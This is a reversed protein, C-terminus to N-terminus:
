AAGKLTRRLNFLKSKLSSDILKSGVIVKFGGILSPDVVYSMKLKHNFRDELYSQFYAKDEDDLAMSTTVTADKINNADQYLKRFSETIDDLQSLRGRDIIYQIANTVLKSANAKVLLASIVDKAVDSPILPNQIMNRLETSGFVWNRFTELETYLDDKQQQTECM